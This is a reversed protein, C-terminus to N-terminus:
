LHEDLIDLIFALRWIGEISFASRLLRQYKLASQKYYHKSISDRGLREYVEAKTANRISETTFELQVSGATGNVM